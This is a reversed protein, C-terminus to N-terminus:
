EDRILSQANRIYEVFFALFIFLFFGSVGALIITLKTKPKIPRMSKAPKQVMKINSIIKKELRLGDLQAKINDIETQSAEDRVIKLKKIEMKKNDTTAKLDEIKMKIKNERIRSEYIQNTIYNFYSIYQQSTSEHLLLSVDRHIDKNQLMTNRLQVMKEQNEKAEQAESSLQNIRDRCAKLNLQEIKAEYTNRDIQSSILVIENGINKRQTEIKKIENQKLAIKQELDGRMQEVINKYDDTLLDFLKSSVDIGLPVNEKKWQSRVIIIPSKSKAEAKFKDSHGLPDISFMELLKRNYAGQDIKSAINEPSDVYIFNTGSKGIIGPEVVMSVEYIKPQQLSIIGAVIAGLLTGIVILWKWKWVVILVDILNIEDHEYVYHDSHPRKVSDQQTVTDEREHEKRTDKM